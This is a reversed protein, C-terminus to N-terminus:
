IFCLLAPGVDGATSLPLHLLLLSSSPSFQLSPTQGEKSATTGRRQRSMIGYNYGYKNSPSFPPPPSPPPPPFSPPPPHQRTELFGGSGLRRTLSM